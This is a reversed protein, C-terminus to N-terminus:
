MRRPTSCLTMFTIISLVGDIFRRTKVTIGHEENTVQENFFGPCVALGVRVLMFFHWPNECKDMVERIM